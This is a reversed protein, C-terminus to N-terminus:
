KSFNITNSEGSDSTFRIIIEKQTEPFYVTWSHENKDVSSHTSLVDIKWSGTKSIIFISDDNLTAIFQSREIHFVCENELRCDINEISEHNVTRWFFATLLLTLMIIIQVFRGRTLKQAAM